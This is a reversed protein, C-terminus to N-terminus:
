IAGEWVPARAVIPGHHRTHEHLAPTATDDAVQLDFRLRAPGPPRRIEVEFRHSEGPALDRPLPLWPRGALLDGRPTDLVSRLAVGGAGRWAALWRAGGGAVRGAEPVNTVRVGLRRRSGAPWPADIGDVEIRGELGWWTLTTPPPPDAPRDGPPDATAWDACADVVAAAAAAPDHHDAVHRRAARGMAALREPAALLEALGAVLGPIEGDGLPVKLAVAEPLEAFQGYDSVVAGRGAALVRLLSASTEGATPYRLNLCLDCAAIAAEFDEWPVFGTEHVREAVGLDRALVELVGPGAAAADDGGGQDGGEATPARPSEGVVLLHAAALEPAALAEVAKATRKIPTQFGFSGLVPADEPIGLRRRFARGAGADVAAPLPVGMPVVRVRIEPDEAGIREAAWRNHVLVGRQRRLLTRHAPLEFLMAQVEAGWRRPRAAQAGIWGHDATLRRRYGEFDIRSLYEESLLHHLVLDHLTLVGPRALAMREVAEHYRNNGMQYLPLRGEPAAGEAPVVGFREVVDPDVPQGPLGLVRVAAREVLAPLLDVSYDAIGSHVPPLPSVFDLAPPRRSTAPSKM